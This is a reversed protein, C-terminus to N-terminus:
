RMNGTHGLSYRGPQPWITLGHPGTGVPIRALLEGTTTDFAYVESDYRGTLWLQRGDASVNGMDPSGGGPVPWNAVVEGVLGARFDVVSVSGPGRRVGGTSHSGRNTVYLRTGDRSPYIGHTGVGTPIFGVETLSPGDIVHVGDARMDAVYFFRGDPTLRVDQPMAGVNPFDLTGLLEHTATDIKILRGGFECTALFYSGDASWDLHNIGRCPYAVSSQVELTHPDRFYLRREAEAVVIMSRGDPTFYMNYPDAVPVTAGPRGTVPDIPTLSGGNNNVWLTRLDWSPVVHQPTVGTRFTDVVAFTAPDIVSVTGSGGNPVYVRPLDAALRPDVMGTGAAGYINVPPPPAPTAPAADVIPATGPTHEARHDDAGDAGDDDASCATAMTLVALVAVATSWV